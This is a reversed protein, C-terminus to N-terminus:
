DARPALRASATPSGSTVVPAAHPQSSAAFLTLDDNMWDPTFTDVLRQSPTTLPETRTAAVRDITTVLNDGQTEAPMSLQSPNEPESRTVSVQQGSPQTSPELVSLSDAWLSWGPGQGTLISGPQLRSELLELYLRSGTHRASTTRPRPRSSYKM